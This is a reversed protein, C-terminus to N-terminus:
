RRSEASKYASQQKFNDKSLGHRQMKENLTRRPIDLLAMVHAINGSCKALAQAILNKEFDNMQDTLSAPSADGSTPTGTLINSLGGESMQRALTFREAANKLERVNGPWKHTRLTARDLAQPAPAVRGFEQEALKVFHTFLMEVDNGRDRLPPIQLEITNIRYYLDSRFREAQIAVAINENTASIIRVNFSIPTNTGVRTVQKEQLVRLLKVQMTHPLSTVEDLFITGGDAYEFAGEKASHAGTFAGAAHGFLESEFLTEPIAGCNIAVFPKASRDGFDHLARAVVEKGSGTEGSLLIGVNTSALDTIDHRLKEIEPSDGILRRSLGSAEALRRRLTRNELLLKRRELARRATDLLQEPSFPKELFDYASRKMADVAMAIQGHGTMLIVPIDQDIQHVAEMLEMGDIHPMKVDSVVIGDFNPTLHKLADNGNSYASVKLDSLTLWQELSRRMTVEDDILVVHNTM